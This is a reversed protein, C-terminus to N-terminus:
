FIKKHRNYGSGQGYFIKREKNEAFLFNGSVIGNGYFIVLSIKEHSLTTFNFKM